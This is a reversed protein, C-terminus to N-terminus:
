AFPPCSGSIASLLPAGIALAGGAAVIVAATLLTIHIHKKSM